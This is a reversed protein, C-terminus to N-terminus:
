GARRRAARRARGEPVLRAIVPPAAADRPDQRGRHRPRPTGRSSATSRRRVAAWRARQRSTPRRPATATTARTSSEPGDPPPPQPRRAPTRRPRTRPGPRPRTPASGRRRATPGPNPARRGAGRARSTPPECRGAAPSAQEPHEGVVRRRDREVRTTPPRRVAGVPDLFANPSFSIRSDRESPTVSGVPTADHGGVRGRGHRDERDLAQGHDEPRGATVLGSDPVDGEGNRGPGGHREHALRTRPLRGRRGRDVPEQRGFPRTVAPRTTSSPRSRSVRLSRSIRRM